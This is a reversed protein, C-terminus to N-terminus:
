GSIIVYQQLLLEAIDTVSVHNEMENVNNIIEIGPM